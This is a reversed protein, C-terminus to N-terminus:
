EPCEGQVTNEYSFIWEDQDDCNTQRWARVVPNGRVPLFQMSAPLTSLDVSNGQIGTASNNNEISNYAYGANSSSRPNIAEIFLGDRELRMEVWSYRWANTRGGIASSGTIKIWLGGDGGAAGIRVIAWQEGTSTATGVGGDVWLIQATGAEASSLVPGDAAEVHTHAINALHVWAISIGSVVAIGWGGAPISAQSIGWRGVHDKTPTIARLVIRRQFEDANGAPTVVPADIAIADFREIPAGSQNCVLVTGTNLQANPAVPTRSGRGGGRGEALLDMLGNWTSAPITLSDGSNVKAYDM